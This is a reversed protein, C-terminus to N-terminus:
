PMICYQLWAILNIHYYSDFILKGRKIDNLVEEETNKEQNKIIEFVEHYSHVKQNGCNHKFM